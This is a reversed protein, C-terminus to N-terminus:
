RNAPFRARPTPASLPSGISGRQRGGEKMAGITGCFDRGIDWTAPTFDRLIAHTEDPRASTTFGPRARAQEADRRAGFRRSSTCGAGRRTSVPFRPRRDALHSCSSVARQAQPSTQARAFLGRPLPLPADAVRFSACRPQRSSSAAATQRPSGRCMQHSDTSVRIGAGALIVAHFLHPHNREVSMGSDHPFTLMLVSDFCAPTPCRRRSLAPRTPGSAEPSAPCRDEPGAPTGEGRFQQFLCVEPSSSM